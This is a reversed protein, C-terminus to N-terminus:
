VVSKRDGLTCYANAYLDSPGVAVHCGCRVHNIPVSDRRQQYHPVVAVIVLFRRCFILYLKYCGLLMDIM